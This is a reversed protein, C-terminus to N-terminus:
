GVRMVVGCKAYIREGNNIEVDVSESGINVRYNGPRLNVQTFHGYQCIGYQKADIFINSSSLIGMAGNRYIILQGM